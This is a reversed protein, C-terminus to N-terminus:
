DMSNPSCRWNSPDLFLRHWVKHCVQWVKFRALAADSAIIRQESVTRTKGTTVASGQNYRNATGHQATM